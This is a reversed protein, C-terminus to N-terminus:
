ASTRCTFPRTLPVLECSVVFELPISITHLYYYPTTRNSGGIWWASGPHRRQKGFLETRLDFRNIAVGTLKRDPHSIFEDGAFTPQSKWAVLSHEFRNASSEGRSYILCIM